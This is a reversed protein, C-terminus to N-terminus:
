VSIDLRGSSVIQALVPDDEIPDGIAGVGESDADTDEETRSSKDFEEFNLESDTLDFGRSKLLEHLGTKEERLMDLVMPNEVRITARIKGGIDSQVDIEIDGLGRPTLQILTRNESWQANRIQGNVLNAFRAAQTSTAMEGGPKGQAATKTILNEFDKQSLNDVQTNQVADILELRMMMGDSRVANLSQGIKLPNIAKTAKNQMAATFESTKSVSVLFDRLADEPTQLDDPSVQAGLAAQLPTVDGNIPAFQGVGQNSPRLESMLGQQALLTAQTQTASTDREPRVVGMASAVLDLSNGIVDAPNNLEIESLDLDLKGQPNIGISAVMLQLGRAFSTDNLQDFEAIFVGLVASLDEMFDKPLSVMIKGPPLIRVDPYSIGARALISSISAEIRNLASGMKAKASDVQDRSAGPVAADEDPDIGFKNKQKPTQDRVEEIQPPKKKVEAQKKQAEVQADFRQGAGNDAQSNTQVTSNPAGTRPAAAIISVSDM